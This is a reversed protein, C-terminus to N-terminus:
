QELRSGNEASAIVDLVANTVEQAYQPDGIISGHNAGEIYRTTSNSSYGGVAQQLESLLESQASASPPLETAWLVALPLSGLSEAAAGEETLERRALIAEAYYTDFAQNSARLATLENAIAEPYGFNRLEEGITLRYVGTRVMAWLFVQLLDNERKWQLFADDTAFTEPLLIASDVLVVGAVQDPYQQAYVRSLVGGYSHGVLVIPSSIGAANLAANLEQAIQSATRPQPSPESWGNGARDYSCVQHTESLQQQVWYWELSFSIGGAELVITPSGEGVCHIHMTHDNVAVLEGRPQYTQKDSETAVLQFIVGVAILILLTLFGWRVVRLILRRCGRQKQNESSDTKPAVSTM